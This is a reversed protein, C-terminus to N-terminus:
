RPSVLLLGFTLKTFPWKERGAASCSTPLVKGLRGGAKAQREASRFGTERRVRSRSAKKSANSLEWKNHIIFAGSTPVETSPYLVDPTYSGIM